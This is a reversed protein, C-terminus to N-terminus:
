LIGLGELLVKVGLFILIGGGVIEMKRGFTRGLFQGLYFGSLSTMFVCLVLAIALQWFSVNFFSLGVGVWLADLSTAIALAFLAKFSHLLAVSVPIESRNQRASQIMKGGIILLIACAVCAGVLRSAHLLSGGKFGMSFMVFHALTFLFSIQWLTRRNPLRTQVCGASLTVALNDMSLCAAIAFSLVFNM